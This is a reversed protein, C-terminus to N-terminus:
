CEQILDSIDIDIKNSEALQMLKCLPKASMYYRGREYNSVCVRTVGLAEALQEQSMFLRKRLNKITNM